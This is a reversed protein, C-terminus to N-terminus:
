TERPAVVKTERLMTLLAFKLPASLADYLPAFAQWPPFLKYFAEQEAELKLMFSLLAAPNLFM